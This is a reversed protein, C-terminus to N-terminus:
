RRAGQGGSGVAVVEVAVTDQRKRSDQRSEEEEMPEDAMVADDVM